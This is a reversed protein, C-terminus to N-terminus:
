RLCLHSSWGRVMAQINVTRPLCSNSYALVNKVFAAMV